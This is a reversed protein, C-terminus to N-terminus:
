IINKEMALRILHRIIASRSAREPNSAEVKRDLFILEAQELLVITQIKKDKPKMLKATM